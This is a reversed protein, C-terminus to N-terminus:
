ALMYGDSTKVKKKHSGLVKHAKSTGPKIGKKKLQKTEKKTYSGQHAM